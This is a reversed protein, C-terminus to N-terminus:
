DLYDDPWSESPPEAESEDAATMKSRKLYASRRLSYGVVILIIGMGIILYDKWDTPLGLFPIFFVGFGLLLVLSQRSMVITYLPFCFFFLSQKGTM